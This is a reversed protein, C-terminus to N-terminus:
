YVSHHSRDGRAPTHVGKSSSDKSTRLTLPFPILLSVIRSIISPSWLGGIEPRPHRFRDWFTLVWSNLLTSLRHFEVLVLTMFNTATSETPPLDRLLSIVDAMLVFIGSVRVVFGHSTDQYAVTSALPDCVNQAAPFMRLDGRSYRRQCRFWMQRM